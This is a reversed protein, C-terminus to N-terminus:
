PEEDNLVIETLFVSVQTQEGDESLYAVGSFRSEDVAALGFGLTGDNTVTGGIAGCVLPVSDDDEDFVVLVHDEALIDALPLDLTTFSTEVASANAAGQTEGAPQRVNTLTAVPEDTFDSDCDGAFVAARSGDTASTLPPTEAGETTAEPTVTVGAPDDEEQSPTVLEENTDAVNNFRQIVRDGSTLTTVPIEIVPASRVTYGSPLTNPDQTVLFFSEPEVGLLDLNTIECTAYAGEITDTVCSGTRVGNNSEATITIGTGPSCFNANFGQDSYSEASCNTAGVVIDVFTADGGGSVSLPRAPSFVVLMVAVITLTSVGLRHLFM